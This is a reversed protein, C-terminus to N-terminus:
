FPLDDVEMDESVDDNVNTQNSSVNQLYREKYGEMQVHLFKKVKLNFAMRDDEDKWNVDSSSPYKHKLVWKDNTKEKYFSTIKEGNQTIITKIVRKGDSNPFDYFKVTIMEGPKTNPLKEMFEFWHRSNDRLKLIAVDAANRFKINYFKGYSTGNHEEEKLYIDEVIGTIDEYEIAYSGEGKENQRWVSGPTNEDVPKGDKSKQRIEGFQVGLYMVGSNNEKPKVIGSM